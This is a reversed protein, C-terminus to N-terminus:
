PTERQRSQISRAFMQLTISLASFLLILKLDGQAQPGAWPMDGAELVITTRDRLDYRIPLQTGPPHRAVWWRMPFEEWFAGGNSRTSSTVEEGDVFYRAKSEIFWEGHSGASIKQVNQGTITGM